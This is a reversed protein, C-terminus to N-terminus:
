KKFRKLGKKKQSTMKKYIDPDVVNKLSYEEHFIPRDTEKRYKTWEKELKYLNRFNEPSKVLKKKQVYPNHMAIFFRYGFLDDLMDITLTGRDILLQFTEFFTLYNSIYINKLELDPLNEFDYEEFLTYAHKYDENTVFSTNLDAIFDAETIKRSQYIEAALLVVGLVASLLSAYQIMNSQNSYSIM